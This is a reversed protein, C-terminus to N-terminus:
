DDELETAEERKRGEEKESRREADQCDANHGSLNKDL